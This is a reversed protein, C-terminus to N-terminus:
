QEFFSSMRQVLNASGPLAGSDSLWIKKLSLFTQESQIDFRIFGDMKYISGFCIFSFFMLINGGFNEMPVFSSPVRVSGNHAIQLTVISM